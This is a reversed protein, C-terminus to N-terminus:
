HVVIRSVALGGRRPKGLFRTRLETVLEFNGAHYGFSEMNVMGMLQAGIAKLGCALDMRM